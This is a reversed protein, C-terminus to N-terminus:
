ISNGTRFGSEMAEAIRRPEQCDGIALVAPVKGTLQQVLEKDPVDGMALVITDAPFTQAKGEQEATVGNKTIETARTKTAMVVGAESLRQIVRWRLVPGIDQGMRKEMELIAVNKGKQALFEAVECGVLGGGIIVVRAGAQKKGTLIDAATVVSQSKIGPIDPVLTRSGTAIVVADPQLQVISQATAKTNLKVEVGAKALQASLYDSLYKVESKFPAISAVQLKGGLKEKAEYLTVKHGRLAAVRAAEMGAPGGGVVVVKRKTTAPKIQWDPEAERGVRPNLICSVPEESMLKDLCTCDAICTNIDGPRGEIVKQPLFPDAILPRCMEWFDIVGYSMFKEALEPRNVRYTLMLPVKIGAKKWNEALYLWHGPAIENTVSPLDSEHTGVGLSLSDAGAAEFMKAMEIYEEPTNGGEKFLDNAISRLMIPYGAGVEKRIRQIIEVLFRGRNELSGGYEDTRKNVRPLLFSVLLYGTLCGLEIADFGAKKIRGATQGYIEVLQKVEDNTLARAPAYRPLKPQYDSPAVPQGEIGYKHPHAHIGGHIIECVAKGGYNHIAQALKKMGPLFKDNDLAMQGSYAKGLIHPYGGGTAVMAAGGKAREAMFAIERDTLMGTDKDCFNTNTAAFKIRNKVKMNGIQGPRLLHEFM